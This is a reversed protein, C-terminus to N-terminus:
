EWLRLSLFKIMNDSFINSFETEIQSHAERETIMTAHSKLNKLGLKFCFIVVKFVQFFSTLVM